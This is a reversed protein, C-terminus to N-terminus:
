RKIDLRPKEIAVRCWQSSASPRPKRCLSSSVQRVVTSIGLGCGIHQQACPADAHNEIASFAVVWFQDPDVRAHPADDGHASEMGLRNRRVTRLPTKSTVKLSSKVPTISPQALSVM